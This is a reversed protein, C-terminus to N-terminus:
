SMILDVILRLFNRKRRLFSRQRACACRHSLKCVLAVELLEVDVFRSLRCDRLLYSATKFDFISTFVNQSCFLLVNQTKEKDLPHLLSSNTLKCTQVAHFAPCIPCIPSHWVLVRHDLVSFSVSVRFDASQRRWLQAM